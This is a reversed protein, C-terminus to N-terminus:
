AEVPSLPFDGGSGHAAVAESTWRTTPDRSVLGDRSIRNTDAILSPRVRRRLREFVRFYDAYRREQGTDLHRLRDVLFLSVECGEDCEVGFRQVGIFGSWVCLTSYDPSSAPPLEPTFASSWVLVEDRAGCPGECAAIDIGECRFPIATTTGSDGRMRDVGTLAWPGEDERLAERLLRQLEAHTAVFSLRRGGVRSWGDTSLLPEVAPISDGPVHQM